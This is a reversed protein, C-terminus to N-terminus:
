KLSEITQYKVIVENDFSASSTYVANIIDVAQSASLNDAAVTVEIYDDNYHVFCDVYGMNIITVEMLVELESIENLDKIHQTALEKETITATQSALVENYTELTEQRKSNLTDRLLTIGNLRGTPMEELVDDTATETDLPSKIFWVALMACITLCVLAFQSKKIM